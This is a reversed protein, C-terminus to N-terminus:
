SHKKVLNPTWSRKFILMTASITIVYEKQISRTSSGFSEDELQEKGLQAFVAFNNQHNCRSTNCRCQKRATSSSVTGQFECGIHYHVEISVMLGALEGSINHVTRVGPILKAAIGASAFALVIKSEKRLEALLLKIVFTKGTGSPADLFVYDGNRRNYVSEIITNFAHMQDVLLRPKHLAVYAALENLDYCLERQIESPLQNGVSRDLPPFGYTELKEGSMEALTNEICVLAMKCGYNIDTTKRCKM